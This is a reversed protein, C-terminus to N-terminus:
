SRLLSSIVVKSTVPLDLFLLSIISFNLLVLSREASMRDGMPYVSSQSGDAERITPEEVEVKDLRVYFESDEPEITKIEQIVSQLRKELFENFSDLHQRVLGLEDFMANVLVWRSNTNSNSKKKAM